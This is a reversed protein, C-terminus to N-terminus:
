QNCKCGIERWFITDRIIRRIQESKYYEELRHSRGTIETCDIQTLRAGCDALHTVSIGERGIAKRGKPPLRKFHRLIKDKSNNLLTIHDLTQYASICLGGSPLCQNQMATAIFAARIKPEQLTMSDPLTRGNKCGGGLIHLADLAMRSGYSYGSLSVFKFERMQSLLTALYYAHYDCVTAKANVDRMQGKIKDAPWTFFIYRIPPADPSQNILVNYNHWFRLKSKEIDARNEHVYVLNILDPNALYANQLDTSTRKLACCNAYQYYCLEFKSANLPLHRSSVWWFEDGPRMEMKAQRKQIRAYPGEILKPKPNFYFDTAFPACCDRAPNHVEESPSREQIGALTTENDSLLPSTTTLEQAFVSVALGHGFTLIGFSIASFLGITCISTFLTTRGHIGFTMEIESHFYGRHFGNAALHTLLDNAIRECDTQHKSCDMNRESLMM